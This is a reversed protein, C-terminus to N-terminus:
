IGTFPQDAYGLKNMLAEAVTVYQEDSLRQADSSQHVRSLHTKIRKNLLLNREFRSKQAFAAPWILPLYM